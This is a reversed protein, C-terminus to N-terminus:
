HSGIRAFIPDLDFLGMLVQLMAADVCFALGGSFLFGLGHKLLQELHPEQGPERGPESAGPGPQVGSM